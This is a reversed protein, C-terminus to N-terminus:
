AAVGRRRGTTAPPQPTPTEGQARMWACERCRDSDDCAEWRGCDRCWWHFPSLVEISGDQNTRLSVNGAM